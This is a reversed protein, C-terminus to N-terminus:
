PVPVLAVRFGRHGQEYMAAYGLRKASRCDRTDEPWGGGRLVRMWGTGTLDTVSGGPYPTGMWDACFEWVNGHMDYLGWANPLKRGVPQTGERGAHPVTWLENPPFGDDWQRANKDYWCYQKMVAEADSDGWSYRTTTGARCAYEWQAETPLRYEYGAPLRGVSREQTTLAECYAAAENWSVREVPRDLNGRFLSPNSGTVAEYERQTVEYRGLWFGRSMTVQTQPGEDELRGSESAPSGMTFTGPPIWVMAAVPEFEMARFFRVEDVAPITVSLEEGQAFLISTYTTWEGGLAATSKLQYSQGATCPWSLRVEDTPVFTATLKVYTVPSVFVATISKNADMKVTLPNDTGTADGTWELFAWPETASASLSVNEGDEYIARDPQQSVGGKGAILITLQHRPRTHLALSHFEGAAIAVFDNGAPASVQGYFNKGWGIISGNTKLALSHTQGVAIAVFDNGAPPSAQGYEDQGWGIISGDAKLALSHRGYAAIAVFDNGGPASSEGYYNSGWGIISGDARLALSHFMGAAIAVFDNGAPPTAQGYHNDGWGIVSGDAKLALNHTFGGAIAVFDNGAPPTAQGFSNEGWGIISGNAKLALSYLHCAAIAVFDNGARASAQGRDNNGWGVISGDAKLALNHTYGAAIAVFDNGAPASAQGDTNLGWGIIYGDALAPPTLLTPAGVLCTLLLRICIKSRM